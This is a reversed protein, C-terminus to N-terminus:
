HYSEGERVKGRFLWYILATYGLIIPLLVLTGLLMFMQSAPAASTDWVTLSPPVLYPFSSIVLGLYGLLFLGIAALFPLTDGGRQLSRWCAFATLATVVPVPWLYFINPTSFWREAIRPISLPTWLSVIAMFVLVAALMTKAQSRAGQAIEGKTKMVLWTAGLLAYGVAVGLGCMIAFPTAWDFPGGAFAGNEVKIGQILGGLIAGQCLAAIVSGTVFAVNWKIKSGALGRFEIAIGRFILALLMVIVPVYFAPMIVAYARPFAVLLGGGGLVLWTENGDWFPKISALMQERERDDGAFPFLMGIGLDFGDLIVYMAVSLGIVGAWILPLYPEM